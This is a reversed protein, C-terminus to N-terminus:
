GDATLEEALQLFAERGTPTFYASARITSICGGLYASLVQERSENRLRIYYRRLVAAVFAADIAQTLSRGKTGSPLTFTESVYASQFPAIEQVFFLWLHAFEHLYSELLLDEDGLQKEISGLYIHQPEALCSYGLYSRPAAMVRVPLSFYDQWEPMLQCIKSRAREIGALLAGSAEVAGSSLAESEKPPVYLERAVLPDLYSELERRSRKMKQDWRQRERLVAQVLQARPFGSHLLPLGESLSQGGPLDIESDTPM